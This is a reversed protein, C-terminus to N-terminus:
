RMATVISGELELGACEAAARDSFVGLATPGSGTIASGLAGAGRLHELARVLEPRLSLAAAQLDNDLAAALVEAPAGALARLASPELRTRTAALRDAERYVAATSLGVPQPLLVIGGTGLELPEVHEGAGTVLAHGPEVQSPVDAGLESAIARLKAPDLPHGALANAGRLVAAADASGGGLGAAVPIRKDIRVALPPPEREPGLARRLRELAALALNPGEVGPCHVEDREAVEVVVSDALDISAFLSCIEHLGDGRRPGVQLVLNVKAFAREEISRVEARTRRPATAPDGATV